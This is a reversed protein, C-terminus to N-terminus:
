FGIHNKKENADANDFTFEVLVDPQQHILMQAIKDYQHVHYDDNGNNIMIVKITDKYDSDITGNHVTIKHKLALGSRPKIEILYQKDFRAVFGTDVLIQNHAPITAGIAARLDYGASAATSKEPWLKFDVTDFSIM